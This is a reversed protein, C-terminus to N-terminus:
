SLLKFWERLAFKAITSENQKGWKTAMHNAFIRDWTDIKNYYHNEYWKDLEDLMDLHSLIVCMRRIPGYQPHNPNNFIRTTDTTM